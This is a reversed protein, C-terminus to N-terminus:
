SGVALARRHALSPCRLRNAQKEAPNEGAAQHQVCEGILVADIQKEASM